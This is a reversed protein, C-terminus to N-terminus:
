LVHKQDDKTPPYRVSGPGAKALRRGQVLSREWKEDKRGWKDRETGRGERGKGRGTAESLVLWPDPMAEYPASRWFKQTPWIGGDVEDEEGKVNEEIEREGREM